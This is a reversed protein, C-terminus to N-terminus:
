NYGHNELWNALSVLAWTKKLFSYDGSHPSHRMFNLEGEPISLVKKLKVRSESILSPNGRLWHGTPSIFGSKDKRVGVHDLEPFAEMLLQQKTSKPNSAVLKNAAM